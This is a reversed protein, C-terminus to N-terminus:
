IANCRTESVRTSSSSTPLTTKGEEEETGGGSGSTGVVDLTEPRSPRESHEQDAPPDARRPLDTAEVGEDRGDKSSQNADAAEINNSVPNSAEANQIAEKSEEKEESQTTKVSETPVKDTVEAGNGDPPPSSATGEPNNSNGDSAQDTNKTANGKIAVSENNSASTTIADM